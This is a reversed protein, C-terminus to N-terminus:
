RSGSKNAGAHERVYALMKRHESETILGDKLQLSIATEVDEQGLAVWEWLAKEYNLWGVTLWAFFHMEQITKHALGRRRLEDYCMRVFRPDNETDLLDECVLQWNGFSRWNPKLDPDPSAEPPYPDNLIERLREAWKELGAPINM